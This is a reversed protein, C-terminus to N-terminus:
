SVRTTVSSHVATVDPKNHKKSSFFAVTVCIVIVIRGLDRVKLGKIEPFMNEAPVTVDEMVIQGTISARLSFKGEIKPASLGKMGKELIFGRIVDKGTDADASKAWIIFVDAIPSNTIRFFLLVSDIKHTFLVLYLSALPLGYLIPLYVTTNIPYNHKMELSDFKKIFNSCCFYKPFVLLLCWFNLVKWLDNRM